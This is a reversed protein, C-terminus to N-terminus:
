TAVAWLNVLGALLFSLFPFMWASFYSAIFYGFPVILTANSLLHKLDAHVVVATWARWYEQREFIDEEQAFLLERSGGWNQWQAQTFLLMLSVFLLMSALGRRPPKLSLYTKVPTEASM